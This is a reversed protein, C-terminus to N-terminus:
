LKKLLKARRLELSQHFTYCNNLEERVQKNSIHEDKVDYITINVMKRLFRHHYVELKRRLEETLAWSKCGRLLINIVTADYLRIRLKALIDKNCLVRKM